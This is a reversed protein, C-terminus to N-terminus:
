SRVSSSERASRTVLVKDLRRGDMDVVELRHGRWAFADGVAPLRGLGTMILGALTHFQGEAEDDTPGMLSLASRLKEVPVDGDVLWSGDSRAVISSAVAPRDPLEGLLGELVDTLTVIGQLAGYEDVVLATHSRASRFRDLLVLATVTEPV